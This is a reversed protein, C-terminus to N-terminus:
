NYYSDINMNISNVFCCKQVFRLLTPACDVHCQHFSKFSQLLLTYQLSYFPNSILVKSRHNTQNTIISIIRYSHETMSVEDEYRKCTFLIQLSTFWKHGIEDASKHIM